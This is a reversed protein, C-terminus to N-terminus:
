MRLASVNQASSITVGQAINSGSVTSDRGHHASMARLRWRPPPAAGTANTAGVVSLYAKSFRLGLPPPLLVPELPPPPGVTAGSTSVTQNTPPKVEAQALVSDACKRCDTSGASHMSAGVRSCSGRACCCCNLVCHTDASAHSCM